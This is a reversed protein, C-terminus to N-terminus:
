RLSLVRISVFRRHRPITLHAPRDLIRARTRGPVLLLFRCGGTRLSAPLLRSADCRNRHAAWRCSSSPDNRPLIGSVPKRGGRRRVQEPPGTERGLRPPARFTRLGKGRRTVFAPYRLNYSCHGKLPRAKREHCRGIGRERRILPSGGDTFRRCHNLNYFWQGSTL